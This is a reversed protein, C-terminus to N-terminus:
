FAAALFGLLLLLPGAFSAIFAGRRAPLTPLRRAGTTYAIGFACTLVALFGLMWRLNMLPGSPATYAQTSDPGVMRATSVAGPTRGHGSVGLLTVRPAAFTGDTTTFRATCRQTLGSGHCRTTTAYGHDGHGIALWFPEASVWSFFAAVLSLAVLALLGRAPHRGPVRRRHLHRQRQDRHRAETAIASEDAEWFPHNELRELRAETAPSVPVQPLPQQKRESKGKEPVPKEPVPAPAADDPREPEIIMLDAAHAFRDPEDKEDPEGTLSRPPLAEVFTGAGTLHATLDAAGAAHGATTEPDAPDPVRDPAGRWWDPSPDAFTWPNGESRPTDGPQPADGTM